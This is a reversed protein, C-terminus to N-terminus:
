GPGLLWRPDSDPEYRFVSATLDLGQPLTRRVQDVVHDVLNQSEKLKPGIVIVAFSRPGTRGATSAILALMLGDIVEVVRTAAQRLGLLESITPRETPAERPTTIEFRAVSLPQEAWDSFLCEEILALEFHDRTLLGTLGDRRELFARARVHARSGPEFGVLKLRLEGLQVEASHRLTVLKRSTYPFYDVYTGSTSAMDELQWAGTAWTLTAHHGSVTPESLVIDMDEARGLTLMPKDLLYLEGVLGPANPAFTVLLSQTGSVFSGAANSGPPARADLKERRVPTSSISITTPNFFRLYRASIRRAPDESLCWFIQKIEDVSLGALVDYKTQRPMPRHRPNAGPEPVACTWMEWLTLGLAYLDDEVSALGSEIREPSQYNATGGDPIGDPGRFVVLAPDRAFGFDLLLAKDLSGDPNSTIMVNGPKIDGHVLRAAHIAAVGDCVNVAIRRLEDCSYGGHANRDRIHAHLTKGDIYEMVLIPGYDSPVLDYVRCVNPSPVRRANIMERRLLDDDGPMRADERIIKLAVAQQAARDHALFVEGMGGKGLTGRIEYRDNIVSGSVLPPPIIRRNQIM